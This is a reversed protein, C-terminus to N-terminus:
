SDYVVLAGRFLLADDDGDAVLRRHGHHGNGRVRARRRQSAHQARRAAVGPRAPDRAVMPVKAVASGRIARLRAM